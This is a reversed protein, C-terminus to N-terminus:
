NRFNMGVAEGDNRWERPAEQFSNASESVDYKGDLLSNQNTSKKCRENQNSLCKDYSLIINSSATDHFDNKHYESNENNKANTNKNCYYPQSTIISPPYPTFSSTSSSKPPTASPIRKGM